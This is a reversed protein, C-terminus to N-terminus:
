GGGRGSLSVGEHRNHSLAIGAPIELAAAGSRDLGAPVQVTFSRGRGPWAADVHILGLEVLALPLKAMPRMEASHDWSGVYQYVPARPNLHEIARYLRGSEMAQNRVVRDRTSWWIYLPVGNWALRHVYSMPSRAAYAKPDTKPTGGIELRAKAQLEAGWRLEAFARYRASLDTASDLAVAGALLHPHLADLLLTEQGGMSSGIAYVGHREVHLWRVAREVIRPMRALDSIQGRWGWSYSVLRRGQGQPNVVAFPGFAPLDGWCRANGRATGGRGHPSVVLPIPPDLGPRYWAPLVLLAERRKGDWARYPVWIDRVLPYHHSLLDKYLARFGITRGGSAVPVAFLAVSVALPLVRRM